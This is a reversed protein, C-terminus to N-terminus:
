LGEPLVHGVHRLKVDYKVDYKGDQTKEVGRHAPRSM